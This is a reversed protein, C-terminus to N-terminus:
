IPVGEKELFVKLKNRTRFLSSRVKVDSVGLRKAISETPEGYFYRLMFIIRSEKKLSRLFCNLLRKVDDEDENIYGCPISDSLEECLGNLKRKQAGNYEARNISVNRVVKSCYAMLNEPMESPVNNWLKLLSDNVCEEVDEENDLINRSISRFLRGYKKEVEAIAREDKAVFLSIIESDALM